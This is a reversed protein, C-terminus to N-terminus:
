ILINLVSVLNSGGQLVNRCFGHRFMEMSVNAYLSCLTELWLSFYLVNLVETGVHCLARRTELACHGDADVTSSVM